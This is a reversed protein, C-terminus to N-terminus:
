CCCYYRRLRKQFCNGVAVVFEVSKSSKQTEVASQLDFGFDVAISREVLLFNELESLTVEEKLMLRSSYYQLFDFKWFLLLLLKLM